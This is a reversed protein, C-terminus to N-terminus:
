GSWPAPVQPHVRVRGAGVEWASRAFRRIFRRDHSVAVIPGPFTELAAEFAELTGLDLHNTPEDLVLLNARMALLRALQLKQRQGLSLAGVPRSADEWTFLGYRFLDARLGDDAGVLGARYVEWLTASPDPYRQEQALYGVIAAPSRQVEGRTPREVGALVRLLTSKGAGNPGLVVIRSGPDVAVDVGSLIERGDYAVAVGTALLPTRSHLAAPDFAPNIHIPEPPRPVPDAELRRLKEEVARVNRSIVGDVRGGKFGKLFKDNDRAPRNHAVQRAQSGAAARLDRIEEQQREYREQWQRRALAKAALFAGYGGPYIRARHDHEDIEVIRTVVAKLFARDHSVAVVAGRHGRLREELWALAAVDLHNTPEDLLLLDPSRLLLAALGLRSREGGSLSGLPRDLPLDALGLGGLVAPVAADLDYGGIRDFRDSLDGYAALAADFADGAASGLVGELRRLETEVARAEAFAHEIVCAVSAEDPFPLAQALYGVSVGPAIEVRGADAVDAGAVIRLLTTKGSGNAGVIGVRDGAAAAFSVEDLVSLPGFSKAVSVVLLV